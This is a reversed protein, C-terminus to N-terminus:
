EKVLMIQKKVKRDFAVMKISHFFISLFSRAFFDDFKTRPVLCERKKKELMETKKEQMTHQIHLTSISYLGNLFAFAIFHYCLLLLLLLLLCGFGISFISDYFYKGHKFGYLIHLQEVVDGCEVRLDYYVRFRSCRM